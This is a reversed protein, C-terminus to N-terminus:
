LIGALVLFLYLVEVKGKLNSPSYFGDCGLDRLRYFSEERTAAIKLVGVAMEIPCTTVAKLNSSDVGSSAPDIPEDGLQRSEQM